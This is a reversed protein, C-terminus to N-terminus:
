RRGTGAVRNFVARLPATLRWSVSGQLAQLQARTLLTEERSRVLDESVRRVEERTVLLEAGTRVLDERTRALDEATRALDERLGLLESGTRLLEERLPPMERTYAEASYQYEDRERCLNEICQRQFTVHAQLAEGADAPRDSGLLYQRRLWAYLSDPAGDYGPDLGHSKWKQNWLHVGFSASLRALDFGPAQIEGFAAYDVPNFVDPPVLFGGLGLRTVAENVLRPGIEGWEISAKDRSQCVELCYNLYDAGAPSKIVCSAVSTRGQPDRETAFVYDAEFDFPRLCVVDTDVWWGGREHLLKYRFLNSFASSSGRGFGRQYTFVSDRPLIESADLVVVGAPANEIRDFTYLHYDHGQALFSRLSLVQLAPLTSGLWFSQVVISM